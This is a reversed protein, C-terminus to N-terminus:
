DRKQIIIQKNIAQYDIPAVMKIVDLVDSLKEKIDLKGSFTLENLAEDELIIPIGYSRVLKQMVLDLNESEFTYYGNIWSTVLDTNTQEVMFTHQGKILIGNENPHLIVEDARDTVSLSVSGEVLTTIVQQDEDFASINFTTGLVKVHVFETEVVFPKTSDHTVKFYAEGVLRVLRGSESFAMPYRLTSEANLLVETGDPLDLSIRCGRPVVLENWVPETESKAGERPTRETKAAVEDFRIHTDTEDLIYKKGSSIIYPKELDVTLPEDPQRLGPMFKWAAFGVSLLIAVSAATRYLFIRRKKPASRKTIKSRFEEFLRDLENKSLASLETAEYSEKVQNFFLLHEKDAEMWDILRNLDEESLRGQLSAIIQKELNELKKM